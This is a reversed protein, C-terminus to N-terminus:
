ASMARFAFVPLATRSDLPWTAVYAAFPQPKQYPRTFTTSMLVSGQQMETPVTLTLSTPHQYCVDGGDVDFPITYDPLDQTLTESWVIKTGSLIAVAAVNRADGTVTTQVVSLGSVQHTIVLPASALSEITLQGGAM